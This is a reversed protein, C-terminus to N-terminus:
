EEKTEDSSQSEMIQELSFGQEHVAYIGTTFAGSAFLLGLACVAKRSASAHRLFPPYSPRECVKIGGLDRFVDLTYGVPIGNIIGIVAGGVTGWFIKELEKEGSLFYLPPAVAASFVANYAIDHVPRVWSSRQAIRFFKESSERGKQFLAGLGMFLIVAGYTRADQSVDNSMNVVLTEYAAFFPTVETSIGVTEVVYEYAKQRFSKV